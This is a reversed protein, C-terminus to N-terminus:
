ALYQQMGNDMYKSVYRMTDMAHDDKKLPVEKLSLETKPKPWSYAIIEDLTGTTQKNNEREPDPDRLAWKYFFMRPRDDLAVRLRNHVSDIGSRIDNDAPIAYLGSNVLTSIYAPASPDCVFCEPQYREQIDKAQQVWWGDEGKAGSVLKGTMYIEYVLMIRGDVDEGWVQMVGPNTFGWDVGVVFRKFVVMPPMEDLVHLEDSFEKYVAGEAQVWLGDVLRLKQVGTLRALIAKYQEPNAPNDKESSYWVQAEGGKILRKYIWHTPPGPNTSLLIARWGARNGRMRALIENFDGEDFQIAEEMWVMDLGGAGGISRIRERQADDKMGGYIIQSGNSYNFSSTGGSFHVTKGIQGAMVTTKMFSVISNTTSERTKRLMLCTVGPYHLCFGHMKEAWLRSKGGGASGTHLQIFDKARWPAIQVTHAKFPAVQNSPPAQIALM